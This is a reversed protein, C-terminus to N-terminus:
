SRWYFTPTRKKGTYSMASRLYSVFNDVWGNLTYEVMQTKVIGESTTLDSKGWDKQVEKTSMGRYTKYLPIGVNFKDIADQSYQDIVNGDKDTTDGASELSKNFISGIMIYDAGM